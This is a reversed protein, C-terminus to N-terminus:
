IPLKLTVVTGKNLESSIEIEGNHLEIFQKAVVLGLGSGQITSTNSARYFSSFLKNKDEQPIGIGFDKIKLEVESKKFNLELEPNQAGASYKFANSLINTLIYTFLVEDLNVKTKVEDGKIPIVPDFPFVVVM